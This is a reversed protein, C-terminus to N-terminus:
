YRFKVKTFHCVLKDVYFNKKTITSVHVRTEYKSAGRCRKWRDGIMVLGVFTKHFQREFDTWHEIDRSVFWHRAAGELNAWVSQLKFNDPWRHLKAVGNITRIWDLAQSSTGLGNFIPTSKNLDPAITIANSPINNNQQIKLLEMLMRNQRVLTEVLTNTDVPSVPLGPTSSPPSTTKM